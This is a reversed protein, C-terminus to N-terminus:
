AVSDSTRGCINFFFSDDFVPPEAEFVGGTRPRVGSPFCDRGGEDNAMEDGGVLRVLQCPQEGDVAGDVQVCALVEGKCGFICQGKEMSKQIGVRQCITGVFLGDEVNKMAFERNAKEWVAASFLRDVADAVPQVFMFFM